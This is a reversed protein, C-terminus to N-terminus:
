SCPHLQPLAPRLQPWGPLQYKTPVTATCGLSKGTAADFVEAAVGGSGCDGGSCDGRVTIVAVTGDVVRLQLVRASSVYSSEIREWAGQRGLFVEGVRGQMSLGSVLCAPTAGNVCSLSGANLRAGADTITVRFENRDATSVVEGASGDGSVLLRVQAGNVTQEAVKRCAVVTCNAGPTAVPSAGSVGQEASWMRSSAILAGAAVLAAVVVTVWVSRSVRMAEGRM